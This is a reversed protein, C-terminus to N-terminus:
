YIFDAINCIAFNSHGKEFSYENKEKKENHLEKQCILTQRKEPMIAM